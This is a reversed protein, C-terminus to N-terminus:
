AKLRSRHQYGTKIIRHGSSTNLYYGIRGSFLSVDGKKQLRAHHVPGVWSETGATTQYLYQKTQRGKVITVGREAASYCRRADGGLALCIMRWERGHASARPFLCDTVLHAVEHPVTLREIADSQIAQGANLMITSTAYHATGAAIGKYKFTVRARPRSAYAPYLKRALAEVEEVRARLRSEVAAFERSM